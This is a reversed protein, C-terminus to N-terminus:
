IHLRFNTHKDEYLDFLDAPIYLHLKFKISQNTNLALKLLIEAIDHHKFQCSHYIYYNQFAHYYNEQWSLLIHM